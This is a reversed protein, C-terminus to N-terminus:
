RAVEVSAKLLERLGAVEEYLAELSAERAAALDVVRRGPVLQMELLLACVQSLVRVRRRADATELALHAIGPRSLLEAATM